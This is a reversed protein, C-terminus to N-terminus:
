HGRWPRGPGLAALVGTFTLVAIVAIYSAPDSATLGPVFFMSLPRTVLLALGLGIAIGIALLRAFERLM